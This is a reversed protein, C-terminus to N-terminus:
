VEESLIMNCYTPSIETTISNRDLRKCVRHVTGTGGFFDLVLDGPKTSLLIIREILAEPHQNPCWPRREKFTGCVRPFEWVDDPVRGKPNARKDNYKEQRASPVRIADANWEVGAKSARM